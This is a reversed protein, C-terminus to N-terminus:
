ETIVEHRPVLSQDTPLTFYFTSGRGLESEVWIRGGHAQIINKAIYLGLGFGETVIKMANETRFFRTFLKGLDGPSIGVGTDSVSVKIYPEDKQQEVKVIVEGNEVNYRVANELLNNLVISLRVPDATVKPLSSKPKDFYAKVGSKRALPAVGILIKGIFDLIDVEEFVYGFHGEEVEAVNLLDEVIGTLQRASALAGEVIAKSSDSLSKDGALSEIAWGIETIPTRLQHSAVTLFEAKSKLLSVERTRDRIIKMFGILRGGDDAVMSTSVRLELTPDTFSLDVVQPYEGQKSRSLVVPALSPFIIQTLLKWSSNEIDQPQFRHGSVKGAQLKFLKEAAPNFFLIEFNNSYVLLADELNLFASKLESREMRTDRDTKAAKYVSFFVAVWLLVLLGAQILFATASLFIYSNVFLAALLVVIIWLARM